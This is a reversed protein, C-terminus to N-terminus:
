GAGLRAFNELIRLGVSQSKEPHFQIGMIHDRGAIAAFRGGYDATAIVYDVDESDAPACYYSHVFYAFSGSPVGVLLPHSEAHKIQNWGMHPVKLAPKGPEKAPGSFRLVRGPLLGLGPHAGMEESGDFLLQMGLCIGLLPVGTSVAEIIAEDLGRARLGNMGAQFAGVGPLVLRGARRVVASDDTVVIEVGVAEFAKQVSRLNSGGYDLMTIKVAETM